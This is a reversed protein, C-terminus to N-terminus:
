KIVVTLVQRQMLLKIFAVVGLEAERASLGFRQQFARVVDLVSKRNDLQRVVFSGFEDLEYSKVMGPPRLRDFLSGTREAKVKLTVLHDPQEILSVNHHLIPVGALSARRDLREEKRRKFLFM